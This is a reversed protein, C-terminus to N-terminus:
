QLFVDKNVQEESILKILAEMVQEIPPSANTYYICICFFLYSITHSLMM